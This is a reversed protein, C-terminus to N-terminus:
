DEDFKAFAFTGMRGRLREGHGSAEGSGFKDVPGVAFVAAAIVVAWRGIGPRQALDRDGARSVTIKLLSGNIVQGPVTAGLAAAFPLDLGDAFGPRLKHSFRLFDMAAAVGVGKDEVDVGEGRNPDDAGCMARKLM